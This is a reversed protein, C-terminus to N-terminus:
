HASDLRVSNGSFKEESSFGAEKLAYNAVVALVIVAAFGAVLAKM